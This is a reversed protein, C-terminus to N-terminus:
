RASPPPPALPDILILIPTPAALAKPLRPRFFGLGHTRRRDSLVLVAAFGYTAHRAQSALSLRETGGVPRGNVTPAQAPTSFIPQVVLEIALVAGRYSGTIPDHM